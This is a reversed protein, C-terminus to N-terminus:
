FSEKPDSAIPLPRQAAGDPRFVRRGSSADWWVWGGTEFRLRALAPLVFDRINDTERFEDDPSLLGVGGGDVWDRLAAERGHPWRRADLAMGVEGIADALALRPNRRVLDEWVAPWVSWGTRVRLPLGELRDDRFAPCLPSFADMDFDVPAGPPARRAVDLALGVFLRVM